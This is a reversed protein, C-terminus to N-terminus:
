DINLFWAFLGDYRALLIAATFGAVFMLLHRNTFYLPKNAPMAFLLMILLIVPSFLAGFLALWTVRFHVDFGLDYPVPNGIGPMRGIAMYARLAFTYFSVLYFLPLYCAAVVLRYGYRNISGTVEM